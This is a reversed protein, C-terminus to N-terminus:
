PLVSLLTLVLSCIEKGIIKSSRLITNGLSLIKDGVRNKASESMIKKAEETHTHGYFPNSDGYMAEGGRTMNYGNSNKDGIFTNLEKIWYVERESM